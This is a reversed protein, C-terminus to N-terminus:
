VLSDNLAFHGNTTLISLFDFKLNKLISNLENLYLTPEGGTFVLEKPKLKNLTEIIQKIDQADLSGHYRPSSMNACHACALTCRHGLEINVCNINMTVGFFSM